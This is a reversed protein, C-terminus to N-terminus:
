AKVGYRPKFKFSFKLGGARPWLYVIVRDPLVDYHNLSWDSEQAARELSERQLQESLVQRRLDFCFFSVGIDLRDISPAHHNGGAKKDHPTGLMLGLGGFRIPRAAV